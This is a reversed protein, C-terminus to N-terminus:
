AVTKKKKDVDQNESMKLGKLFVCVSISCGTIRLVVFNPLIFEM